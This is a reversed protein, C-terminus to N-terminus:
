GKKIIDNKQHSSESSNIDSPIGRRDTDKLGRHVDDHAQKIVTRARENGKENTGTPGTTQDREHPLMMESDAKKSNSSNNPLNINEELLGAENDQHTTNVTPKPTTMM